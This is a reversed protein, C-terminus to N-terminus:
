GGSKSCTTEKTVLDHYKWLSHHSKQKGFEVTLGVMPVTSYM